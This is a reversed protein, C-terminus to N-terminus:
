LHERRIDEVVETVAKEEWADYGEPDTRGVHWAAVILETGMLAEGAELQEVIMSIKSPTLQPLRAAECYLLTAAVCADLLESRASAAYANKITPGKLEANWRTSLSHLEGLYSHWGLRDAAQLIALLRLALPPHSQTLNFPDLRERVNEYFAALYAPGGAWLAILDIAMEHAWNHQNETPRWYSELVDRSKLALSSAQGQFSLTALELKALFTDLQPEYHERFVTEDTVLAHHGLEHFIWAYDLLLPVKEEISWPFYLFFFSEFDSPLAQLSPIRVREYGWLDRHVPVLNSSLPLNVSWASAIDATMARDFM